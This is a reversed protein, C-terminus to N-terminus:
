LVVFSASFFWIICVRVNRQEEMIGCKSWIENGGCLNACLYASFWFLSVISFHFVSVTFTGQCSFLLNLLALLFVVSVPMRERRVRCRRLADDPSLLPKFSHGAPPSIGASCGGATMTSVAAPRAPPSLVCLEFARLLLLFWSVRPSLSSLAPPETAPDM